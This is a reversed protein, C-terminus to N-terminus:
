APSDLKGGAMLEAFLERLLPLHPDDKYLRAFHDEMLPRPDSIADYEATETLDYATGQPTKPVVGRAAKLRPFLDYAVNCLPGFDGIQGVEIIIHGLARTCGDPGVADALARIDAETKVTQNVVPTARTIPVREVQVEGRNPIDVVLVQPKRELNDKRHIFDPAGSFYTPAPGAAIERLEHVHGLANYRPFETHRQLKGLRIFLDPYNREEGPYNEVHAADAGKPQDGRVAFHGILVAPLQNGAAQDLLLTILQEYISSKKSMGEFPNTSWAAGRARQVEDLYTDPLFPVGVIQMERFRRVLANSFVIFQGPSDTDDHGLVAQLLSFVEIQDHNGPILAISVGENFLRHFPERVLAACEAVSERNFSDFLDGAIVLLDARRTVALDMIEPIIYKRMDDLRSVTSAWKSGLHWDSTHVIRM